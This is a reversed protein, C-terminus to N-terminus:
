VVSRRGFLYSKYMKYVRLCHSENSEPIPSFFDIKKEEFRINGVNGSNELSFWLFM